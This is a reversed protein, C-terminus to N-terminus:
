YAQLEKAQNLLSANAKRMEVLKPTVRKLNYALGIAAMADIFYKTLNLKSGLESTAYDSPFSHHYNHYGEGFAAYSVFDSERGAIKPNYPKDGFMHAASNVFWTCHLSTGYRM